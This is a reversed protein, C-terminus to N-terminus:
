SKLILTNIKVKGYGGAGLVQLTKYKEDFNTMICYDTLYDLWKQCASTKKCLFEIYNGNRCLAFGSLDKKEEKKTVQISEVKYFHEDLDLCDM